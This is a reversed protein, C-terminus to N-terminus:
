SSLSQSMKEKVSLVKEELTEKKDRRDDIKVSTSVRQAGENFVAEHAMKISDFLKEPDNTEMITGMGTISYKVGMKDLASVAAAIYKSLSTGSTGIPIITLEASIM